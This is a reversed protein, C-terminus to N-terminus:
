SRRAATSIPPSSRSAARRSSCTWNASFPKSSSVCWTSWASSAGRSRAGSSALLSTYMLDIDERIKKEIGPRIIKVAVETGDPLRGRHVQAVSAAAMSVPDFEVFVEEVPRGLEAEVVPRVAEFPV